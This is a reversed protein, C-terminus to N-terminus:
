SKECPDSIGNPVIRSRSFPFIGSERRWGDSIPSGAFQEQVLAVSDGPREEGVFADILGIKVVLWTGSLSAGEASMTPRLLYVIDTIASSNSLYSASPNASSTRRLSTLGM